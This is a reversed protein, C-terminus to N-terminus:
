IIKLKVMNTNINSFITIIIICAINFLNFLFTNIDTIGTDFIVKIICEINKIIANGICSKSNIFGKELNIYIIKYVRKINKANNLVTILTTMLCKAPTVM